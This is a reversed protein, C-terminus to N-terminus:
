TAARPLSLVVARSCAPFTDASWLDWLEQAQLRGVPGPDECALSIQITTVSSLFEGITMAQRRGQFGACDGEMYMLNHLAPTRARGCCASFLRSSACPTYCTAVLCNKSNFRKEGRVSSIKLVRGFIIDYSSIFVEQQHGKPQLPLHRSSTTSPTFRM